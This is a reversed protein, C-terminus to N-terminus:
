PSGGSSFTGVIELQDEDSEDSDRLLERVRTELQHLTKM